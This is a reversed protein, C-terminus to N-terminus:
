DDLLDAAGVNYGPVLHGYLDVTIKISSHGLQDRVYALSQNNQIHLTAFTHRLDHFRIRRLGADQLFQQFAKYLNSPDLMTGESTQFVLEDGERGLEALVNGLQKSMDVFRTKGSKPLKIKGRSLTRQIHILRREFDIDPARLAILEGRRMGARLACLYLPYNKPVLELAKRLGLSVEEKTWPNIVTKQKGKNQKGMRAAPNSIPEGDEIAQNYMGRVPALINRITGPEFKKRKETILERIMAKNVKSFLKEGLTAYVHNRLAAEYEQYTSDAITGKVSELWKVGYQKLTLRSVAHEGTRLIEALRRKGAERDKVREFHRRGTDDRWDVVWKGRHKRVTAM